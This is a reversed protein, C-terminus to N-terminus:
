PISIVKVEEVEDITRTRITGKHFQFSSILIYVRETDYTRITGKHFQFPVM